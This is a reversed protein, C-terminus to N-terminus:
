GPALSEALTAGPNLVINQEARSPSHISGSDLSPKIWREAVARLKASEM